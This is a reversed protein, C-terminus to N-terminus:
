ENGTICKTHNYFTLTKLLEGATTISIPLSMCLTTLITGKHRLYLIYVYSLLIAQLLQKDQSISQGLNLWRRRNGQHVAM